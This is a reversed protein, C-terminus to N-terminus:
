KLGREEVYKRLTIRDCELKKAMKVYTYGRDLYERIRKEHQYLKRKEPDTRRGERRGLIVGESKKRKLAEKVRQSIMNREIESAIGLIMAVVPSMLDDKLEYGEKISYISVGKELCTRIVDMVGFMRRSLRSIETVILKDGKQLTDFIAGFNRDSVKSAGTIVDAVWDTVEFEKRRCFEEIEFRQNANEQKDTSVRLYAITRM